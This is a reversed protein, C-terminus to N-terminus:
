HKGNGKGKGKNKSKGKSKSHGLKRGNSRDEVKQVSDNRWRIPMARSSRWSSVRQALTSNSVQFSRAVANWNRLRKYREAVHLVNVRSERAIIAANGIDQWNLGMARMRDIQAQSLNLESRYTDRWVVNRDLAGSNRLQVYRDSPVGARTAVQDWPLGSQRLRWIQDASTQPAYQQLAFAPAMDFISAGSGGLAGLIGGSDIGLKEALLMIAIQQILDKDIQASAQTPAATIGLAAVAGIALKKINM